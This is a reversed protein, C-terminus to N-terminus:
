FHIHLPALQRASIIINVLFVNKGDAKRVGVFQLHNEALVAQFVEIVDGKKTEATFNVEYEKIESSLFDNHSFADLIWQAYGTNNVHGNLDLDSNRVLFEAVKRSNKEPIIKKAEVSIPADTRFEDISLTLKKEAPKRTQLDLILWQTTCHGVLEDGHLIEFDRIAIWGEIPRIWTKLTVEEGWHPWKQIILKQRTLVWGTQNRIMEEYGHGLHTAHIWATDQIM